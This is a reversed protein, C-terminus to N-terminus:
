IFITKFLSKMKRKPFKFIIQKETFQTFKLTLKKKAYGKKLLDSATQACCTVFNQAKTCIRSFRHLQGTFVGYGLVQPFNGLLSPYNIKEYPFKKKSNAINTVFSNSEGNIEIGLFDLKNIDESARNLELYPPYISTNNQNTTTNIISSFHPNDITLIDDIYRFTGIYQRAKTINEQMLKDIFTSEYWCLIINALHPAPNTGMPLGKVQKRIKDGNQVYTNNILIKVMLKIDQATYGEGKPVRGKGWEPGTKTLKIHTYKQGFAEDIKLAVKEAADQLDLTTYLTSFDYSDLNRNKPNKPRPLLPLLGTVYEFNDIIWCRRVGTDKIHQVDQIQLEKIILGLFTNLSKALTTTMINASGAIYRAKPIEKHMKPIWYMLPLKFQESKIRNNIDETISNPLNKIDKLQTRYNLYIQENTLNCDEYAGGQERNILNKNLHPNIIIKAFSLLTKQRRIQLPFSM